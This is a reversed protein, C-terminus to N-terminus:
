SRSAAPAAWAASRRRGSCASRRAEPVEQTLRKRLTAAIAESYLEPEQRQPFDDLIVFASAFNSGYASLLFSQGAVAVTHRVGPQAACSTGWALGHHGADARGLHRRATQVNVLLYGMDQTPIFGKPTHTFGWYTLALLGGYVVLVIISLRLAM